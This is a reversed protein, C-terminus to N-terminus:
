KYLPIEWLFLVRHHFEGQAPASVSPRRTCRYYLQCYLVPAFVFSLPAVSLRRTCRDGAPSLPSSQWVIHVLTDMPAWNRTCVPCRLWPAWHTMYWNTVIHVLIYVIDIPVLIYAIDIPVLIYVLWYLHAVNYTVCNAGTCWVGPILVM